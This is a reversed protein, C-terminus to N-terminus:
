KLFRVTGAPLAVELSTEGSRLVTVTPEFRLTSVQDDELKLSTGNSIVVGGSAHHYITVADLSSFGLQLQTFATANKAFYSIQQGAITRSVLMKGMFMLDGQVITSDGASELILDNAGNQHAITCGTFLPSSTNIITPAAQQPKQPFLITLLQVYGKENANYTAALRNHDPYDPYRDPVASAVKEVAVGSPATAYHITLKTGGISPYHDIAALYEQQAVTMDVSTQNAPHLYNVIESGSPAHVEDLLIVYPLSSGGGHLLIANRSHVVGSMAPGSNGSAFDLGQATFGEEIGGGLRSDHENGAITLTNNLPAPRTPAGLRGGNVLLRNGYGSLALGNVEQHTHWEDQSKINYLVLHLGDTDDEPERFFAGGNPYIESKPVVPSPLPNEPLIYTLINGEAEIGEYFWAAYGAAEADFNGVRRQLMYNGLTQTPLMDGIIAMEKSCNISSAFLWRHFKQLRENKYYRNDIGTYELVDMYGAKSLRSNGGGVREWAYHITVPSVGDDTIQQMIGTYYTDDPTTRDGKYIDWTGHTGSRADQWSGSRAVKFIQESIVKECAEVETSELDDYVIDLALIAMFFSGMNPVVGGWGSGDGVDLQVYQETIAKKVRQAHTSANAEDLIYALAVAGIYRQLDYPKSPTSKKARSLADQKMSMWPEQNARSRLEVFEEKKVILFPHKSATKSPPTTTVEGNMDKSCGHFALLFGIPILVRTTWHM